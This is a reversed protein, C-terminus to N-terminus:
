VISLREQWNSNITMRYFITIFLMSATEFSHCSFNVKYISNDKSLFHRYVSVKGRMRVVSPSRASPTKKRATTPSLNLTKLQPMEPTKMSSNMMRQPMSNKDPTNLRQPMPYSKEPTIRSMRQPMPFPKEPTSKNIPNSRYLLYM